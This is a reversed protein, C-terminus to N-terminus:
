QPSSVKSLLGTVWESGERVAPCLPSSRFYLLQFSLSDSLKILSVSSHELLAFCAFCENSGMSHCIDLWKSFAPSWWMRHISPFVFTMVMFTGMKRRIEGLKLSIGQILWPRSDQSHRKGAGQEGRGERQHPPTLLLFPRPETHARSLLLSFMGTNALVTKTVFRFVPQWGLWVWYFLWTQIQKREQKREAQKM